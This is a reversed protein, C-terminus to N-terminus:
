EDAKESAISMPQPAPATAVKAILRTLAAVVEARQPDDLAKWVPPTEAPSPTELFGMLLQM